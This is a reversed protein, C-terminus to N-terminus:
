NQISVLDMLVVLNEVHDVVVLPHVVTTTLVAEMALPLMGM